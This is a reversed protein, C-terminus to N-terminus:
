NARATQRVAPPTPTKSAMYASINVLDEATMKSVIPKMLDSWLGRRMGTQFDFLQRALYSPSRGALPPVPGVGELHPGHCVGCQLKAALQEGKRISGVPAYAIYGAHDDRLEFREQGFEPVEIIRNGIPEKGAAAGELVFYVNGQVKTKPVMNTEQVKVWGQPIPLAAFYEASAKVEEPTTERAFAAMVGVNAKRPDSSKRLGNKFDEMQQIIYAAPLGAPPANEPRGRGNALHCLGCARVNPRGTKVISPMPGHDEPHWDVIDPIGRLQTRTLAVSSGEIRILKGDDAPPAAPAAPAAGPPPPPMVGWAWEPLNPPVPAGPAQAAPAQQALAYGGMVVLAIAVLTLHIKRM